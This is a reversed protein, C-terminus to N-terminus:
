RHYKIRSKVSELQQMTRISDNVVEINDEYFAKVVQAIIDSIPQGTTLSLAKIGAYVENSLYSSIQTRNEDETKPQKKGDVKSKRKRKKLMEYVAPEIKPTEPEPQEPEDGESAAMDTDSQVGEVKPTEPETLESQTETKGTTAMNRDDQLAENPETAAEVEYKPEQNENTISNMTRDGKKSLWKIFKNWATIYGEATKGTRVRPLSMAIPKIVTETNVAHLNSYYKEPLRELIRELRGSVRMDTEKTDKIFDAILAKYDM